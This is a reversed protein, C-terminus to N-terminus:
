ARQFFGLLRPTERAQCGGGVPRAVAALPAPERPSGSLSAGWAVPRPWRAPRGSAAPRGLAGGGRRAPSRRMGRSGGSARRPGARGPLGGGGGAGCCTASPPLSPPPGRAGASVQHRGRRSSSGGSLPEAFRQLRGQPPSAAAAAAAAQAPGRPWAAPPAPPPPPAPGRERRFESRLELYCGRRSAGGLEPAGARGGPRGPVIRAEARARPARAARPCAPPLAALSPRAPSPEAKPGPSIRRQRGLRFGAGAAARGARGLALAPPARSRALAAALRRALREGRGLGGARQGGRLGRGRPPPPLFLRGDGPPPGECRPGCVRASARRPPGRAPGPARPRQAFHAARGQTGQSAPPGRAPRSAEPRAAGKALRPPRTRKGGPRGKMGPWRNAEKEAPKAAPSRGAVPLSTPEALVWAGHLRVKGRQRRPRETACAVAYLSRVPAPPCAPLLIQRNPPERDRNPGTRWCQSHAATSNGALLAVLNLSLLSLRNFRYRRTPSFAALPLSDRRSPGSGTGKERM